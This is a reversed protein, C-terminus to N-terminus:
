NISRDIITHILNLYTNKLISIDSTSYQSKNFYIVCSYGDNIEEIELTLGFRAINYGHKYRCTEADKLNLKMEENNQYVFVIDSLKKLNNQKITSFNNIIRFVPYGDHALIKNIELKTDNLFSTFPTDLKLHSKIPLPNTFYGISRSNLANRGSSITLISLQTQNSIKHLSLLFTSLFFAFKSTHLINRTYAQLQKSRIYFQIYHGNSKNIPGTQKKFPLKTGECSDLYTKWFIYNKRSQIEHYQLSGYDLANITIIKKDLISSYFSSLSSLFILYSPGDFIIHHTTIILYSQNPNLQALTARLLPPKKLDFKFKEEQHIIDLLSSHM